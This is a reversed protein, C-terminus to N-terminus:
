LCDTFVSTGLHTLFGAVLQRDPTKIKIFHTLTPSYFCDVRLFLCIMLKIDYNRNISFLHKRWLNKAVYPHIQSVFAFMQFAKNYQLETLTSTQAEKSITKVFHAVHFLYLRNIKCLVSFLFVYKLQHRSIFYM